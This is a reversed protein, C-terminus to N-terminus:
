KEFAHLDEPKAYKKMEPNLVLAEHCAENMKDMDLFLSQLNELAVNCDVDHSVHLDHSTKVNLLKKSVSRFARNVGTMRAIKFGSSIDIATLKQYRDIYVDYLVCSFQVLADTTCITARLETDDVGNKDFFTKVANKLADVKPQMNSAMLRTADSWLAFRDKMMKRVGRLYKDYERASTNMDRKVDYVLMCREELMDYSDLVSSMAIHNATGVIPWFQRAMEDYLKKAMDEDLQPILPRNITTQKM